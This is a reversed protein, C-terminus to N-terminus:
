WQEFSPPSNSVAASRRGAIIEGRGPQKAPRPVFQAFTQRFESGSALISNDPEVHAPSGRVHARTRALGAARLKRINQRQRESTMQENPALPPKNAAVLPHAAADPHALAEGLASESSAVDPSVVVDRHAPIPGVGSKGTDIVVAAPGKLESHIRIPPLSVHSNTLENSAPVPLLWNAALLLTLLAGGAFLFYRRLPMESDLQGYARKKM